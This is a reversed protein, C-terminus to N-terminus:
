DFVFVWTVAILSLGPAKNVKERGILIVFRRDGIDIVGPSKDNTFYLDIFLGPLSM